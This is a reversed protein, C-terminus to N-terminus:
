EERARYQSPIYETHEVGTVDRWAQRYGQDHAEAKVERLADAPASALAWQLSQAVAGCPEMVDPQKAYAEAEERVKEVVAACQNRQAEVEDYRWPLDRDFAEDLRDREREAEEARQEAAELREATEFWLALISWSKPEENIQERMAKATAILDATTQETM